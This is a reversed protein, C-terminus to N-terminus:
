LWTKPRVENALDILVGRDDANGAQEALAHYSGELLVRHRTEDAGVSDPAIRALDAAEERRTPMLELVTERIAATLRARAPGNDDEGALHLEPLRRVAEQLDAAGPLGARKAGRLGAQEAEPPGAQEAGAPLPESLIRVAAIRAAFYHRSTMPVKDLIEVAGARDARGLRIRALGFAAGAQSRDRRWVARYFAEADPLRGRHEACFGLALKPADEGPLAAYVADFEREAAAVDNVALAHLGRHWAMRWDYAAAAGLLRGAEALFGSAGGVDGAQIRARCVSFENEVKDDVPDSEATRYPDAAGANLPSDAAGYAPESRPEPLGAAVAPPNPRGDNRGRAQGPETWRELPPVAGLGADLLAATPAFISSPVPRQQGDRLSLIERLVGRLQEAMEAASGFRREFVRDTARDLVRRFSRAGFAPLDGSAVFLAQLTKGVAYLDSRVTLGHESREAAAVLFDEHGVIPAKRDDIWRVAGLDILKIREQTDIVNDPKLDCYLLGRRDSDRDAFEHLYGLASLIELGYDILREVSIGDEIAIKHLPAGNVYEMVIYGTEEGTQRDPHTVFNFIRVINPHDLARLFRREEVAMAAAEEDHVNILGKLAVWAELRTDRALYVWGLGGHALCGEVRYQGGVLEGPELKPSFSYPTRCRPCYGEILSPQDAYSGGIWGTCGPVGCRRAHEPPRPDRQVQSRPDISERSIPSLRRSFGRPASANPRETTPAASGDEAPLGCDDCFGDKDIPGGCDRCKM